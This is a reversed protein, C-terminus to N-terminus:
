LLSVGEGIVSKYVQVTRRAIARQTFRTSARDRGAHALTHRLDADILLRHLAEHLAVPDGEPVVLGANGIVYPIEGSDSGVVVNGSAMAEIIVRGFQEKWNPRTLSPLVFIDIQQYFAPMQTSPLPPHFSVRDAIGLKEAQAELSTRAPGSGCVECRWLQETELRGLAELLIHLGKEEVLRGAYGFLLPGRQSTDLPRMKFLRLDVGFQPIVTVPGSYGKCELVERAENSGAIAHAAHRFVWQEMWRFPPPYERLLNQWTFFLFPIGRRRAQWGAHFTAFNYAEEDIHFLDPRVEDLLRGVTPYFHTHFWGNLAIPVVRLEYGETHARELTTEGREDKWSPPVAAVLEVDPEAALAEMKTQYAGVVLAKSLYLIKM